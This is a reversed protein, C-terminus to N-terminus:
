EAKLGYREVTSVFCDVFDCFVGKQHPTFESPKMCCEAILQDVVEEPKTWFHDKIQYCFGITWPIDRFTPLKVMADKNARVSPIRELYGICQNIKQSLFQVGNM